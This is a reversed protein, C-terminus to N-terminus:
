IVRRDWYPQLGYWAHVQRAWIEDEFLSSDMADYCKTQELAGPDVDIVVRDRGIGLLSWPIPYAKEVGGSVRTIVAYAVEARDLDVVVESLCGLRLGDYNEVRLGVLDSVARLSLDSDGM